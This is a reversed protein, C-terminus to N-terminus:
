QPTWQGAKYLQYYQLAQKPDPYIQAILQMIAADLDIVTVSGSLAVERPKIQKDPIMSAAEGVFRAATTSERAGKLAKEAQAEVVKGWAAEPSAVRGGHAEVARQLGEAAQEQAAQWRKKAAFVALDRDKEFTNPVPAALFKGSEADQITGNELRRAIFTQGDKEYEFTDKKM